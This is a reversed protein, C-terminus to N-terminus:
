GVSLAFVDLVLRYNCNASIHARARNLAPVLSRIRSSLFLFPGEGIRSGALVQVALYCASAAQDIWLMGEEKSSVAADLFRLREAPPLSLMTMLATASSRSEDPDLLTFGLNTVQCRSLITPLLLAPQGTELYIRARSPPEELTKLLAHQAADTLTHAEEIVGLTVTGTRPLLAIRKQFDRVASIGISTEDPTVSVTDVPNIQWARTRATIAKMREEKTAGTLLFAHM